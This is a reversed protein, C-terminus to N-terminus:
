EARRKPAGAPQNTRAGGPRRVVRHARIQRSRPRSWGGITVPAARHPQPSPCTLDVAHYPSFLPCGRQAGCTCAVGFALGCIFGPKAAWAVRVAQHHHRTRRITDRANALTHGRIPSNLRTFGHWCRHVFPQGVKMSFRTAGKMLRFGCRVPRLWVSIM